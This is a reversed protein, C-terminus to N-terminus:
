RAELETITVENTGLSEHNSSSKKPPLNREIFFGPQKPQPLSSESGLMLLVSSMNPRDEPRQQVCLLAVHICRLVESQFQKDVLSNEILELTREEMWLRWTHGLLNHDHDPHSFGRNRNGSIIELVLVGFSFVDSKISFHGDLAYEPSMYGYTGVVRRTKAEIQNGDFIRAMGFDSIKPNMNNDLLINSAKLDRHIIRLRSDQHLYLLGRAIGDIINMRRPWDPLKSWTQDFIFYNLSKNPMYEYILMREDGKICYGFLKVLNRHQLKAILTVENKFEELGQGSEKSLRKVAIDQGDTLTGKYVPGFGGRGLKNDSSFNNTANAITAFDFIPLEVDEKGEQKRLKKKRIYLVFMLVLMGTAIIASMAVLRARMKKSKRKGQVYDPDSTAIRIYLDQGGETYEVIDILDRLWLLCGCGDRIDLSAYATCSCNRLCMEECEKIGMSRNFWSSATDPLKLGTQKLFGDADSDCHLPTRRTCGGSWDISNGAKPAGSGPVFGLLCACPSPRLPNCSSYSGCYAYNSCVDAQATSLTEWDLKKENWVYKQMVGSPLVEYRLFTSSNQVEYKYYVEKDSFFFDYSSLPSPKTPKGTFYQGNWSGARFLVKAGKTQVLQPLGRIDMRLHYQGQAPDEPSKWSSVFMDFGTLLNRGIKMKPLFNNCPYDFGRWLFNETNDDNRDKVVLNGSDLLQAVPDQAARSVNSSWVLGGRSNQLSLIGQFNISLVGSTDSVPAERNAVWVVTRTSVKKYWIGLYRNKSNGPSFFGLEFSGGASVLTEGDKVSQGPTITDPVSTSSRTTIFFFLSFGVFGACIGEM